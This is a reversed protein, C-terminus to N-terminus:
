QAAPFNVRSQIEDAYYKMYDGIVTMAVTFDYEDELQEKTFLVGEDNRNLVQALIAITESMVEGTKDEDKALEGVRLLTEYLAQTPRRLRYVKGDLLKIEYMSGCIATWDLM